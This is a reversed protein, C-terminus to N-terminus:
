SMWREKCFTSFHLVAISVMLYIAMYTFDAYNREKLMIDILWGMTEYSFFYPLIPQVMQPFYLTPILAGSSFIILFTFASQLLLMMKRSKIWLDICAIGILFSLTYLLVFLGIRAYDLPYLDFPMWLNLVIYILATLLLVSVLSISIQAFVRQGIKVGLLKMRIYMGQQEEKGMVIYFALLWITLLIFLGSVVYYYQPSDTAINQLVEEDLIKDKGLTFFTFDIFQHLLMEEREEKTMDMEKAYAHITLINAQATAILRTMSEIMEKVIYSDVKKTPNGVIPLTVSKGAYLNETFGNPLSFYASIVDQEMLAEADEIPLSVIQIFEQQGGVEELLTTILSSEKTQDEDVLVVRIPENEVPLILGVALGLLLSIFVIPFLFLLLTAWKKKM